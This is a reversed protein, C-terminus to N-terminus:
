GSVITTHKKCRNNSIQLSNLLCDFVVCNKMGAFYTHIFTAFFFEIVSIFCKVYICVKLAKKELLYYILYCVAVTIGLCCLNVLVMLASQVIKQSLTKDRQDRRIFFLMEQLIFFSSYIVLCFSFISILIYLCFIIMSYFCALVM